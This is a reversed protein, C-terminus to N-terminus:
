VVGSSIAACRAAFKWPTQTTNIATCMCACSTKTASTRKKLKCRSHDGDDARTACVHRRYVRAISVGCPSAANLSRRVCLKTPISAATTLRELEYQRGPLHHLDYPYSCFQSSHSYTADVRIRKPADVEGFIRKHLDVSHFSMSLQHHAEM